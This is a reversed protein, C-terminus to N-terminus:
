SRGRIREVIQDLQSNRMSTSTERDSAPAPRPSDPNAQKEALRKQIALLQANHSQQSQSAKFIMYAVLCTLLACVVVLAAAVILM